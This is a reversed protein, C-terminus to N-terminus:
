TNVHLSHCRGIAYVAPNGSAHPGASISLVYGGLGTFSGGDTSAIVSNDSAIAYVSHHSVGGSQWSVASLTSLLQRAELLEVQPRCVQPRRVRARDSRRAAVRRLWQLLSSM